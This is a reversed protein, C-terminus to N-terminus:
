VTSHPNWCSQLSVIVPERGGMGRLHRKKSNKRRCDGFSFFIFPTPHFFIAVPASRPIPNKHAIRPMKQEERKNWARCFADIGGVKKPPWLKRHAHHLM